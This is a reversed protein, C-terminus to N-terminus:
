AAVTQRVGARIRGDRRAAEYEDPALERLARIVTPTHMGLADGTATLNWDNERLAALLVDRQARAKAENGVRTFESPERHNTQHDM